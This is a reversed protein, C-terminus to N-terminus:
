VACRIEGSSKGLFFGGRFSESPPIRFSPDSQPMSLVTRPLAGGLASREGATSVEGSPVRLHPGRREGALTDLSPFFPMFFGSATTAEPKPSTKHGM